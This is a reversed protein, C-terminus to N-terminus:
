QPVAQKSSSDAAKSVDASFPLSEAGQSPVASDASRNKSIFEAAFVTLGCFVICFVVALFKKM